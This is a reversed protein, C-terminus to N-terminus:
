PGIGSNMGDRVGAPNRRQQIGLTKKATAMARQVESTDVTGDDALLEDLQSVAWVAAPRMGANVIQQEVSRRQLALVQGEAAEARAQMATLQEEATNARGRHDASERRLKEVVKRPFMDGDDQDDADPPAVDAEATCTDVATGVDPSLAEATETAIVNDSM